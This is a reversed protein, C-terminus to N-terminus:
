QGDFRSGTVSYAASGGGSSEIAAREEWKSLSRELEDMSYHQYESAGERQLRFGQVRAAIVETLLTVMESASLAM